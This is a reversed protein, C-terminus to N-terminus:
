NTIVKLLYLVSTLPISLIPLSYPLFLPLLYLYSGSLDSSSIIGTFYKFHFPYFSFPNPSHWSICAPFFYLLYLSPSGALFQIIQPYFHYLTIKNLYHLHPFPPSLSKTPCLFAVHATSISFFLSPFNMIATSMNEKANLYQIDYTTLLYQDFLADTWNEITHTWM